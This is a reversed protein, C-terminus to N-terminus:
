SYHTYQSFRQTTMIKRHSLLKSFKSTVDEMRIIQPSVPRLPSLHITYYQKQQHAIPEESSDQASIIEKAKGKDKKHMQLQSQEGITLGGYDYKERM